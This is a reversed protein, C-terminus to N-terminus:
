WGGCGCLGDFSCGLMPRLVATMGAVALRVRDVNAGVITLVLLTLTVGDVTDSVVEVNAGFSARALMGVVLASVSVVNAGVAFSAILIIGDVALKVV